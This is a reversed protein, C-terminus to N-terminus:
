FLDDLNTNESSESLNTGTSSIDTTVAAFATVSYSTIVIIACATSIKIIKNKTNM